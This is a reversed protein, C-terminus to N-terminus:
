VASVPLLIDNYVGVANQPNNVSKKEKRFM